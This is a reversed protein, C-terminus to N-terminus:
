KLREAKGMGIGPMFSLKCNKGTDEAKWGGGEWVAERMGWRKEWILIKV